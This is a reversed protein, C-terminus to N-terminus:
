SFKYSSGGINLYYIDSEHDNADAASPYGNKYYGSLNIYSDSNIDTLERKGEDPVDQVIRTIMGGANLSWGIGCWTAVEHAKMGSANYNLSIPVSSGAESLTYLPLNIIPTGTYLNVPIDKFRNAFAIEPPATPSFGSATNGIASSITPTNPNEVEKLPPMKDPLPVHVKKEQAFAVKAVILFLLVVKKM